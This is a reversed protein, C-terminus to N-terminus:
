PRIEPMATMAMLRSSNKHASLAAKGRVLSATRGPGSGNEEKAWRGPQPQKERRTRVAPEGM